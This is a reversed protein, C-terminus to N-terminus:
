KVFKEFENNLMDASFEVGSIVLMRYKFTVSEGKGLKFNLAEKGGSMAEQGLPNVAFLGYGRAHWYAPYGINEPHDFITLLIREKKIEGSLSMWKARTGWAKDGEAGGSSRYMGTVGENNLKPVTTPKGNMDTFIAPKDSIHELERALRIGYLGEKNDEMTVEQDVATLITVRDIVRRNQAGSFTFSTNEVLITKGDPGKWEATVELLGAERNSKIKDISKHFITGYGGKKDEPIADSNNWFDLGNVNGYNFWIGVHHPHDIREGERPNLPFGRTIFNGGPSVVPYLVPKRLTEPYIYSTFYTGEIYVDVKRKIEDNILRVIHTDENGESATVVEINKSERRCALCAIVLMLTGAFGARLKGQLMPVDINLYKATLSCKRVNQM